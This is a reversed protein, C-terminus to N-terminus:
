ARSVEPTPAAAALAAAAAHGSQVAGEITGPLGTATWDGALLLNGLPTRTGPRLRGAGPALSPTAFPEKIVHARLLRAGRAAPLLRAIERAALEALEPRPRVVLDRAGSTVATVHSGRDFLWHLPSDLLGLFPRPAIPRDYWLHFSVIPSVGLRALGEFPPRGALAPPVLGPVVRHPVAAVVADAPVREGAGRGSAALRVAVVRDGVVELAEASAHTRVTGGAAEVIARAQETYLDSLGTEAFGLDGAGRPGVFARRVVALLWRASVVEPADNLTALTLPDWFVRRAEPPQGLTRLWADVTVGELAAGAEEGRRAARAMALGARALHLRAGAPVGEFRLLGALLHLPAPLAPCALRARRGDPGAMTVELRPEFAVRDATGLRGLFALTETYARMFLHQGNDVVAGTDPQRFSYARGGLVGRKELVTVRAGLDTLRVAAALGAFGAGIVVVDRTM